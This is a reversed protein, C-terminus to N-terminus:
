WGRGGFVKRFDPYVGAAVANFNFGYIIHNVQYGYLHYLIAWIREWAESHVKCTAPYNFRGDQDFKHLAETKTYLIGGFFGSDPVNDHGGCIQDIYELHGEHCCLLCPQFKIWAVATADGLRDHFQQLWYPSTPWCSDPMVVAYEEEPYTRIAAVVGALEYGNPSTLVALDLEPVGQRLEDLYALTGPDTSSGDVICVKHGNTGFQQLASVLRRLHGEGNFTPIVIM